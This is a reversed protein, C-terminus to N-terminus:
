VKGLFASIDFYCVTEYSIKISERWALHKKLGEEDDAYGNHAEWDAKLRNFDNERYATVTYSIKDCDKGNISMLVQKGKKACIGAMRRNEPRFVILEEYTRYKIFQRELAVGDAENDLEIVVMENEDYGWGGRVPWSHKPYDEELIQRPTEKTRIRPVPFSDAGVAFKGKYNDVAHM